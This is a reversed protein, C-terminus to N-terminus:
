CRNLIDICNKNNIKQSTLPELKSKLLRIDFGVGYTDGTDIVSQILEFATDINRQAEELKEKNEARM